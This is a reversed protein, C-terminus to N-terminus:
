LLARNYFRIKAQEVIITVNNETLYKEANVPYSEETFTLTFLKCEPNRCTAMILPRIVLTRGNRTLTQGPQCTVDLERNCYSCNCQM